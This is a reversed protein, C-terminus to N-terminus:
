LAELVRYDDYVYSGSSGSRFAIGDGTYTSDTASISALASGQRDGSGDVDFVRSSIDGNSMWEIEADYFQDSLSVSVRSTLETRSNGDFRSLLLEDTASSLSFAYYDGLDGGAWGVEAIGSSGPKVYCAFRQDPQPYRDLGSRSHVFENSGAADNKLSFTGSLVPSNDTVSYDGRDGEFSPHLSGEEFQAIDSDPIADARRGSLLFSM